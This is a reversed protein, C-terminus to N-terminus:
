EIKALKTVEEFVPDGIMITRNVKQAAAEVFTDAYSIPYNAKIHAAALIIQNDAPLIKIPLSQIFALVEHIKVPRNNGEM